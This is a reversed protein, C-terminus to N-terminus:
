TGLATPPCAQPQPSIYELIEDFGFAMVVEASGDGM